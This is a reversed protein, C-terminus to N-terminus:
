KRRKRSGKTPPELVNQVAELNFTDRYDARTTAVFTVGNWRRVEIRPDHGLAITLAQSLKADTRDDWHLTRYIGFGDPDSWEFTAAPHLSVIEDQLQSMAHPIRPM